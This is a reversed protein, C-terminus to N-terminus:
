SVNSTNFACEVPQIYNRAKSRVDSISGIGIANKKAYRCLIESVSYRMAEKSSAEHRRNMNRYFRQAYKMQVVHKVMDANGLLSPNARIKRRYKALTAWTPMAFLNRLVRAVDVSCRMLVMPIEIFSIDWHPKQYRSLQTFIFKSVPTPLRLRCHEIVDELSPYGQRITVKDVKRSLRCISGKKSYLAQNLCNSQEKLYEIEKKLATLKNVHEQTVTLSLITM